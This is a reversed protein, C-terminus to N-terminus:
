DIGLVKKALLSVAFKSNLNLEKTSFRSSESYHKSPFFGTAMIRHHSKAYGGRHLGATDCFIISGLNGTAVFLESPNIKNSVEIESPYSGDPLKQPFINRYKGKSTPSSGEIYTFPGSETIVDSLYLFIKLTRKEEPDRHWNQSHSPAEGGVPITKEVYVEFLQPIYGLYSSAIELLNSSLYFRVFPNSLDLVSDKDTTGFYSFLFKKKPKQTLKAENDSIWIEMEELVSKNFLETFNIVSIGKTNLERLVRAQTDSFNFKLFQLDRKQKLNVIHLYIFRSNRFSFYFRKFVKKYGTSKTAVCLGKRRAEVGLVLIIM